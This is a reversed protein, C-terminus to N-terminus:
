IRRTSPTPGDCWALASGRCNASNKRWRRLIMLVRLHALSMADWERAVIEEEAAKFIRDASGFRELLLRCTRPGAGHV